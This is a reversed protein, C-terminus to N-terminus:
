GKRADAVSGRDILTPDVFLHRTAAEPNQIRDVLMRLMEHALSQDDSRLVTLPRSSPTAFGDISIISVDEPVRLGHRELAQATAIALYDSHILMATVKTEIIRDVVEDVGKTNYPPMGTLVFPCDITPNAGTVRRWGERIQAATPTESFAAGIRTHGHALFHVAAKRVGYHHNTRVSDVYCAGFMPQSREAIVVPTTSTTIWQWTDDTDLPLSNPAAIIGCVTPDDALEALTAAEDTNGDYSSERTVLRMGIQTAEQRLHDIISPWLFSPEPAMIGIAPADPPLIPTNHHAVTAPPLTAISSFPIVPTPSTGDDTGANDDTGNPVEQMAGSVSMAGGRVRKVLGAKALITLDRRVTIETTNFQQALEPVTVVSQSTLLSLIMDQREAPLYDRQPADETSSM